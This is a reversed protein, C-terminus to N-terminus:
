WFKEKRAKLRVWWKKNNVYWEITSRLKGEFNGPVPKWGLKHLKYSDLAYRKDHGPRDKVYKILRETKGLNRLIMRTLDINKIENGGGINYINGAEGNKMIFAIADCNDVVYIWDRVNSGDAYLPVKKNDIANTIFLPIVKEPYQYPGFNNSSRTIIVPLRFTVHYSRVLLDAAAKSAAYPSNPRLQSEEQSYGRQVSGYVEDTGIQIYRKVGYRRVADLLVQTGVVNTRVFEAPDKISRDVHSEAAFNIIVDCGGALKSVVRKDCIDGKVFRYRPDGEIDKLNDPNGSYTLKDLNILKKIGRGHRQGSLIYRIFNSGIFGSGGTVLMNKFTM